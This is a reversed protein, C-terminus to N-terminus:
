EKGQFLISCNQCCCRAPQVIVPEYTIIKPYSFSGNPRSLVRLRNSQIPNYIIPRQRFKMRAKSKHCEQNLEKDEQNSNNQTSLIRGQHM